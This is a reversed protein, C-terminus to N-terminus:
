FSDFMAGDPMLPGPTQSWLIDIQYEDNYVIISFPYTLEILNKNSM